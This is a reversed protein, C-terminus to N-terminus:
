QWAEEWIEGSYIINTNGELFVESFQQGDWQFYVKLSEGGRTLLEVPSSAKELAGSTLAAAVAGTGCALTEGEVGREYTRIVMHHADRRSVFNVNTGAPQFLAHFRTERGLGEVDVTDPDDVFYIVHPVGTNLFAADYERTQLRISLHLSLDKPETLQVKVQREHVEAHILGVMTEFAMKAPAIGHLHAYRAICRSGNGCMEVEGGDSNYYRWRFHAKESPEILIVGDAGVSIRRQCIRPILGKLNEEPVIGKRNDIVIFDNGSGSMKTFPIRLTKHDM